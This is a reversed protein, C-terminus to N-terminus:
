LKQTTPIGMDWHMIQILIPLLYNTSKRKTKLKREFKKKRSHLTTKTHQILDMKM